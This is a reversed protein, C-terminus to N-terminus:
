SDNGRRVWLHEVLDNQLQTQVCADIIEQHMKLFAFFFKASVLEVV